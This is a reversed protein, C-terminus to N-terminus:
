GSLSKNCRVCKFDKGELNHLADKYDLYSQLSNDVFEALAFWPRYNLHKLLGLISVAPRIGVKLINEPDSVLM